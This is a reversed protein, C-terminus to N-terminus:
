SLMLKNNIVYHTLEVNSSFDMKKFIRTRFTFISNISLGLEIAIDKVKKGAAIMRMIEIERNSLKDHPRQNPEQVIEFALHEALANSLYRGKTHIRRIAEALEEIVVDKSLYGSAGAKLARLAFQDEAHISLILIQLKPKLKRMKAILELGSIGPMTMDLILVDLSVDKIAELAQAGNQAEGVIIMDKEEKLIMKLGKRIIEHDDVIFLKIM